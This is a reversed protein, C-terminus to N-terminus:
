RGRRAGRGRGGRFGGRSGGRYGGRSGTGRNRFGDDKTNVKKKIVIFETRTGAKFIRLRKGNVYFGDTAALKMIMNASNQHIFEIFAISNNCDKKHGTKRGRKIFVNSPIGVRAENKKISKSEAEYLAKLITSKKENYNIPSIWVTRDIKEPSTHYLFEFVDTHIMKKDVSEVYSKNYLSLLSKEEFSNNGLEAYEIKNENAQVREIFSVFTKTKIFNYRCSLVKLNSSQNEKLSDLINVLGLDKIRNYGIDIAELTSNEKLAEALRRAGNVDFLNHYFNLAKLSKNFKLVNSFSEIGSYGFNNMSMDLLELNCTTIPKDKTGFAGSLLKALDGNVKSEKISLTKISNKDHLANVLLEISNKNFTSSDFRIDCLFENQTFFTKFHNELTNKPDNINISSTFHGKSLNLYKIKCYFKKIYYEKKDKTIESNFPTNYWQNHSDESIHMDDVFRTFTSYSIGTNCLDLEVLSGKKLDNFAVATGLMGISSNSLSGSHSINLYKLYSNDGLSTFFDKGFNNNLNPIHSADIYELSISMKILKYLASALEGGDVGSSNSIVLSKLLPQFALNYILNAIGTRTCNHSIDIHELCKAKMIGDALEKAMKDSLDSSKLSLSQLTKFYYLHNRIKLISFNNIRTNSCDLSRLNPMKDILGLVSFEQTSYESYTKDMFFRFHSTEGGDKLFNNYGKYLNKILKLTVNHDFYLKLFNVKTLKSLISRVYNYDSKLNDANSIVLTFHRLENQFLDLLSYLEKFDVIFRFNKVYFEFFLKIYLERWNLSSLYDSEIKENLNVRQESERFFYEELKTEKRFQTTQSHFLSSYTEKEHESAVIQPSLKLTPHSYRLKKGIELGLVSKEWVSDTVPLLKGEKDLLDNVPTFKNLLLMIQDKESPVHRVEDIDGHYKKSLSNQFAQKIKLNMEKDSPPTMELFEYYNKFSEIKLIEKIKKQHSFLEDENINGYDEDLRKKIDDSSKATKFLIKNNLYSYFLLIQHGVIGAKFCVKARVDDIDSSNILEELEPLLKIMWFISRDQSEDIYPILLDKLANKHSLISYTLLDGLSSTNEKLRFTPESIFRGLLNELNEQVQPYLDLMFRFARYIHLLTKLSRCSNSTKEQVVETIMFTFVKPYVRLIQEPQFNRTSGTCIMSIARETLHQFIGAQEPKGFYLPLWHTFNQKSFGINRIRQKQFAKLSLYDQVITIGKIEGTRPIRVISIGFGLPSEEFTTKRMVCAIENKQHLRLAERSLTYSLESKEIEPFSPKPNSSGKHGCSKCNHENMVRVLEPLNKKEDDTLRTMDYDFFFSQLQLLISFVTYAPTWGKYPEGCQKELMDLCVSNDSMINPHKIGRNLHFIKPPVKPYYESFRLELHMVAGKLGNDAIAKVNAHWVFMSDDIPHATVGVLPVKQNIIENYDKM